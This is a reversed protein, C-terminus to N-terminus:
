STPPVVQGPSERSALSGSIRAPAAAMMPALGAVGAGGGGAAERPANEGPAKVPSWLASMRPTVGAPERYRNRPLPRPPNVPPPVLIPAPHPMKALTNRGLSQVPSWLASMRPMLGAPERYRYRPLPRPPNVPPPVLIPAPHPM